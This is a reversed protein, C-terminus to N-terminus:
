PSVLVDHWDACTQVREDWLAAREGHHAKVDQRKAAIEIHRNARAHAEAASMLARVLNLRLEEFRVCVEVPAKPFLEVARHALLPKYDTRQLLRDGTM